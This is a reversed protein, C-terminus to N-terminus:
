GAVVLIGSRDYPEVRIDSGGGGGGGSSGAVGFSGLGGGNWGATGGTTATGDGGCGGVNVQLVQGATVQIIATITGGYGPRDPNSIEDSNFGGEAGKVAVSIATVGAPVTYFQPAGLYGFVVPPQAISSCHSGLLVVLLLRLSKYMKKM